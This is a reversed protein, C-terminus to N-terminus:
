VFNELKTTFHDLSPLVNRLDQLREALIAAAKTAADVDDGGFKARLMRRSARKAPRMEPSKRAPRELIASVLWSETQMVPVAYVIQDDLSGPPKLIQELWNEVTVAHQATDGFCQARVIPSFYKSFFLVDGDVHVLLADYTPSSSFLNPKLVLHLNKGSNSKCWQEVRTWGGGSIQKSSADVKPQIAHLEIALGKSNAIKELLARFSVFDTSGECVVGFRVM